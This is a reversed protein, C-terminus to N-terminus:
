YASLFFMSVLTFPFIRLCNKSRIASLSIWFHSNYSVVFDIVEAYRDAIYMSIRIPYSPSVDRYRLWNLHLIPLDLSYAIM